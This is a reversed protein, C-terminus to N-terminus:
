HKIGNDFYLFSYKGWFYSGIPSKETNVTHNSSLEQTSKVNFQQKPGHWPESSAWSWVMHSKHHVSHRQSLTTESYKPKGTLIIVGIGWVWRWRLVARDHLCAPLVQFSESLADSKRTDALIPCSIGKVNNKPTELTLSVALRHWDLVFNQRSHSVCISETRSHSKIFCGLVVSRVLSMRTIFPAITVNPDMVVQFVNRNPTATPACFWM